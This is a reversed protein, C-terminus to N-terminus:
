LKEIVPYEFIHGVFWQIQYTGIYRSYPDIDDSSGTVYTIFRRIEIPKDPNVRVWICPVGGQVQLSLIKAGEPMEIKCDSSDIQYKWITNTIM